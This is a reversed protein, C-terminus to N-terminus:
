ARRVGGKESRYYEDVADLSKCVSEAAYMLASVRLLEEHTNLVRHASYDHIRQIAIQFQTDWPVEETPLHGACLMMVRIGIQVEGLLWGPSPGIKNVSWEEHARRIRILEKSYDGVISDAHPILKFPFQKDTEKREELYRKKRLFRQAAELGKPPQLSKDSVVSAPRSKRVTSQKTPM